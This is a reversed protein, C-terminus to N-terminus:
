KKSGFYLPWVEELRRALHYALLPPVANGIIKYAKSPSVLFTGKRGGPKEIVFDYDIPFTQILGCERPTLRREPLGSNLEELLKGGNALSLRRFEINGHHEARITPSIGELKIETQGQCHRGIYKAKSYYRQSLDDTKDPEKVLKFIDKLKVPPQLGTGSQTYAHTPEPYPDYHRPITSGELAELAEPTLASKRIGIFIVRERSQPVGYDAAHLLKPELVIYGNDGASSFDRQIIEKVNHLNVLGKVNEAIFVKPNTLDIVEKMWMYLKGRTEETANLPDLLKGTHSKISDFGNRKGAISFDQCPFGGTVVDVEEPFVMGCRQHTKVLDVVSETHFVAPDKTRKSFHHMWANRAETLIDNAFVTSFKTKRLLVLEKSFQKDIFDPKLTLNVSTHHTLFGGEFGLDMGGCGSFLSLVRLSDAGKDGLKAGSKEGYGLRLQYDDEFADLAGPEEYTITDGSVKM